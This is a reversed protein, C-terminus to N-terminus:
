PGRARFRGPHARPAAAGTVGAEFRDMAPLDPCEPRRRESHEGAPARRLLHFREVPGPRSDPDTKWTTSSKGSSSAAVSAGPSDAPFSRAAPFAAQGGEVLAAACSSAQRRASLTRRRVASTGSAEGRPM